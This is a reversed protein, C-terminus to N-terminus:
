VKWRAIECLELNRERPPFDSKFLPNAPRPCAPFLQGPIEGRVQESARHPATRARARSLSLSLSLPLTRPRDNNNIIENRLTPRDRM